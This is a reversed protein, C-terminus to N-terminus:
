SQGGPQRIRAREQEEWQRDRAVCADFDASARELGYNLCRQEYWTAEEGLCGALGGAIALAALLHAPCCKM